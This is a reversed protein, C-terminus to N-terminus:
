LGCFLCTFCVYRIIHRTYVICKCVYCWLSVDFFEAPTSTVAEPVAVKEPETELSAVAASASAAAELPAQSVEKPTSPGFQIPAILLFAFFLGAALCINRVFNKDSPAM